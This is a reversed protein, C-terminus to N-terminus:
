KELVTVCVDADQLTRAAVLGSLGAGVVICTDMNRLAGKLENSPNQPASADM